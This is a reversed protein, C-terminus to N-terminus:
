HLTTSEPVPESETVPEPEPVPEPKIGVEDLGLQTRFRDMVVQWLKLSLTPSLRELYWFAKYLKPVVIFAENREIGRLARRALEDPDLPRFTEILEKMKDMSVARHLRGYKGGHLIPTRIAGPCLASVRVGHREAEVRLAKTIGVVAHKTATYSGMGPSPLLGAVSATNIIHGHGQAIMIPYVAHIGHAVGRLNVDFVDHWDEPAYEHMEGGVAIGANNFLYDIRGSRRKIDRALQQFASLDRVDLEHATASGGRDVIADAAQEAVGIQRDALVVECGSASLREALARGIGSAGGTIIAVKSRFISNRFKSM